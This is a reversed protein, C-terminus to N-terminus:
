RVELDAIGGGRRHWSVVRVRVRDAGEAVLPVTRPEDRQAWTFRGTAEALIESGRAAAWTSPTM